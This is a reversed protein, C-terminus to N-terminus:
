RVQDLLWRAVIEGGPGQYHIGDPRLTVGNQKERCNGNPCIYNFLDILQAGSTRAAKRLLANNCDTYRDTGTFDNRAYATTTVAVHAGQAALNTLDRRM